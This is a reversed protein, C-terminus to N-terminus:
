RKRTGMKKKEKRKEREIKKVAVSSAVAIHNRVKVKTVQRSTIKKKELGSDRDEIM